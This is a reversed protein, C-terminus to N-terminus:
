PLDEVLNEMPHAALASLRYRHAALVAQYRADLQLTKAKLDEARARLLETIGDIGEGYRGMTQTLAAAANEASMKSYAWRHMATHWQAESSKAEARAAHRLEALAAQQRREKAEAEAIMGSRYMGAFITWHLNVGVMWLDNESGLFTHRDIWQYRGVMNLRPLYAANARDVGAEASALIEQQARIDMRRDINERTVGKGPLVEPPDPIPDTLTIKIDGDLGIIRQLQAMAVAIQGEASSARSKFEFMQARAGYVDVPAVLGEDFMSEALTVTKEAALYASKEVKLLEEAVMVGYYAEILMLALEREGQSVTLGAATIARNAQQRANWAEVNILPQVVQFGSLYADVPGLDQRVIPPILSPSDLIPVYVDSILSGDFRVYNTDFTITPLYGQLTQMAMAEATDQTARGAELTPNKELALQFADELSLPLPYPGVPTAAASVLPLFLILICIFVLFRKTMTGAFGQFDYKGLSSSNGM